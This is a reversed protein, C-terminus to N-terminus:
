QTGDKAEKFGGLAEWLEMVARALRPNESSTGGSMCIRVAKIPQEDHQAV